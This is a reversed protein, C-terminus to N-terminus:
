PLVQVQVTDLVKNTGIEYTTITTKGATLLSVNFGNLPNEPDADYVTAVDTNSSTAYFHTNYRAPNGLSTSGKFYNFMVSGQAESISLPLVSAPMPNQVGNLTYKYNAFDVSESIVNVHISASEGNWTSATITATGVGTAVWNGSSDVTIVGPNSSTYTVSQSAGSPSVTATIKGSNKSANNITAIISTPNTSVNTPVIAPAAVTVSITETINNPTKVTISTTGPTKAIWNGNEDVTIVEPNNSTYKVTQSTGAPLVTTNITGTEEVTASINSTGATIDTPQIASGLVTVAVTNTAEGNPTSVTITATGPWKAIWYGNEDVTIVEPNNSTFQVAQSANSPLVSTTIVGSDDIEATMAEEDVTVASPAIVTVEVTGLAGTTVVSGNFSASVTAFNQVLSGDPTNEPITYTETVTVAEGATLVNDTGVNVPEEYSGVLWDTLTIATLSDDGTNTITYTYTVTEGPTATPTSPSVILGIESLKQDQNVAAMASVTGNVAVLCFIIVMISLKKLTGVLLQSQHNNQKKM